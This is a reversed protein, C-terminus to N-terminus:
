HSPSFCVSVCMCPSSRTSCRSGSPGSGPEHGGWPHRLAENSQLYSRSLLCKLRLGQFSMGFRFAQPKFRKVKSRLGQGQLRLGSDRSSDGARGHDDGADCAAPLPFAWLGMVKGPLECERAAAHVGCKSARSRAAGHQLHM